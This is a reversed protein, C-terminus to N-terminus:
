HGSQGITVMRTEAQLPDQRLALGSATCTQTSLRTQGKAVEHVTARWAGRGMPHDLCSYQLQNGNGRQPVKGVWPQVRTDRTEQM